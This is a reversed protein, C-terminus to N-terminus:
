GKPDAYRKEDAYYQPFGAVRKIEEFSAEPLTSETGERMAKLTWWPSAFWWGGAALVVAVAVVGGLWKWRM